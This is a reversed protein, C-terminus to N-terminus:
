WPCRCRVQGASVPPSQLFSACVRVMGVFCWRAVRRVLFLGLWWRQFLLPVQHSWKVRWELVPLLFRWRMERFVGSRSDARRRRLPM